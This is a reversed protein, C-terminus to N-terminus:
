TIGTVCYDEDKIPKNLIADRVAGGVLYTNGGNEKIIKAIKEIEM